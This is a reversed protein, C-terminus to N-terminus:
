SVFLEEKLNLCCHIPLINIGFHRILFKYHWEAM